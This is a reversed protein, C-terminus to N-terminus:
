SLYKLIIKLQIHVGPAILNLFLDMTEEKQFEVFAMKTQM